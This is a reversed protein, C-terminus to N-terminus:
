TLSPCILELREFEGMVNSIEQILSPGEDINYASCVGAIVGEVTMPKAQLLRLVEVATENLFCTENSLSNYILCADDFQEVVLLGEPLATWLAVINIQSM